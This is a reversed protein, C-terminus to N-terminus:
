PRSRAPEVDGNRMHASQDEVFSPRSGLAVGSEEPQRATAMRYVVISAMTVATGAIVDTLYHHGMFPISVVMIGNLLAVPLFTSCPPRNVYIFAVALVTHFSPFAVIGQMDAIGVSTIAGSRVALFAKTWEPIHLKTHPGIAPAVGSIFVTVLGGLMTIWLIERNRERNRTLAFYTVFVFTQLYISNYALFLIWNLLRHSHIFYAWDYWYFGMSADLACFHNDCLPLRLTAALYTYTNWVVPYALWLAFYHGLDRFSENRGTYGYIFGIGALFGVFFISLWFDRFSFGIRYAWLGDVLAVSAIASWALELRDDRHLPAESLRRIAMEM